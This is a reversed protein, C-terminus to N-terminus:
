VEDLVLLHVDFVLKTLVTLVPFIKGREWVNSLLLTKDQALAGHRQPLPKCTLLM